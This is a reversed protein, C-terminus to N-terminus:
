RRRTARDPGRAPSVAGPVWWPRVSAAHRPRRDSRPPPPDTWRRGQGRHHHNEGDERGAAAGTQGVVREHRLGLRRHAGRRALGVRRAVDAHRGGREGDPQDDGLRARETGLRERRRRVPGLGVEGCEVGGTPHVSSGDLDHGAVVMRATRVVEAAHALEDLVVVDEGEGPVRDVVVGPGLRDALGTNGVDTSLGDAVLVVLVLVQVRDVPARRWPVAGDAPVAGEVAAGLHLAPELVVDAGGGRPDHGVVLGVRQAEGVQRGPGELELPVRDHALLDVEAHGVHVRRHDVHPGLADVDDEVGDVRGAVHGEALRHVGVLEHDLGLDCGHLAPGGRHAGVERVDGCHRRESNAM